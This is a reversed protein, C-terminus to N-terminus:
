NREERGRGRRGWHYHASFLQYLFTMFREQQRRMGATTGRPRRDQRIYPFDAVPDAAVSGDAVPADAVHNVAVRGTPIRGAAIPDAAVLDDNVNISFDLFDEDDIMARQEEM